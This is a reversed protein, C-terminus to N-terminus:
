WANLTQEFVQAYLTAGYENPHFSQQSVPARVITTDGHSRRAVVENIAEPAGCAGKGAFTQAPDGFRINFGNDRLKTVEQGLLTELQEAVTRFWVISSENFIAVCSATKEMPQPYGMLMIAANPAAAHVNRIAQEVAPIVNNVLRAPEVQSIPQTDGGMVMDACSGLRHLPAYTVCNSLIETFKADNGGISLTVLSTNQDLYGQDIQAPEGFEGPNFSGNTGKSIHEARAGACASM